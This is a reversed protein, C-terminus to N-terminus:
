LKNRPKGKMQDQIEEKFYRVFKDLSGSGELKTRSEEPPIGHRIQEVRRHVRGVMQHFIPSRILRSYLWVELARLGFLHFVM